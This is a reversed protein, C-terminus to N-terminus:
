LDTLPFIQAVRRDYVTFYFTVIIIIINTIPHHSYLSPFFLYNYVSVELPRALVSEFRKEINTSDICSGSIQFCFTFVFAYKAILSM